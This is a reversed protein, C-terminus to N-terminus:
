PRNRGVTELIAVITLVCIVLAMILLAASWDNVRYLLLGALGTTMTALYITLVAYKSKLGLEVLRHSFHSKDAHFPSRRQLLRIIIVSATDYLPVALICLPALIVHRSESGNKSEYFTGLVTMSALMLGVFHSGTDGMFIRAPPWNHCLFGALAGSLILLVGAVLWRPESTGTLMVIVFGISAILAIGASLGDMNDLFNFSNMLVLLWGVTLIHGIWPQDIFLTMTVGSMVLGIAIAIQLFLRPMWHLNKLDDLLGMVLLITGGALIAWLQPARYGIGDLHVTLNAPLHLWGAMGHHSLWGLLQVGVLPVVVGLWIGIGGGLPTPVVHVKRAAPRDILGVRPAIRRMGWTAVYSVAFAPLICGLVFTLM